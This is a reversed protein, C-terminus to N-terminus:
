PPLLAANMADQGSFQRTLVGLNPQGNNNMTEEPDGVWSNAFTGDQQLTNAVAAANAGVFLNQKGLYAGFYRMVVGKGVCGNLDHRWSNGAQLEHLTNGQHQPLPRVMLDTTRVAWALGECMDSLTAALKPDEHLISERLAALGGLLVGQGWTWFGNSNVRNPM